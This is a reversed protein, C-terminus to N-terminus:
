GGLYVWADGWIQGSKELLDINNNEPRFFRYSKVSKKYIESLTALRKLIYFLKELANYRAIDSEDLLASM